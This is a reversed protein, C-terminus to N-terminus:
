LSRKSFLRLSFDGEYIYIEFNRFQLFKPIFKFPFELFLSFPFGFSFKIANDKLWLRISPKIKTSIEWHLFEKRYHKDRLWGRKYFLRKKNDNLDQVHHCLNM